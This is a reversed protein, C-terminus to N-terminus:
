SNILDKICTLILDATDEKSCLPLEKVEQQTILTVKNTDVAFGTKDDAISNACVLDAHKKTLKKRSNEILNETEMSFGVLLQGECKHEGLFGLIDKTRSLQIAMEGDQKKVKQESYSAPKYDAVASCMVIIDSETSRTTVAEFM